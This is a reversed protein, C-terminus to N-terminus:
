SQKNLPFPRAADRAADPGNLKGAALADYSSLRRM